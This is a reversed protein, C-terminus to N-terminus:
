QSNNVCRFKDYVLFAFSANSLGISNDESFSLNDDQMSISTDTFFQEELNKEQEEAHESELEDLARNMLFSLDSSELIDMEDPITTDSPTNDFMMESSKDSQSLKDDM